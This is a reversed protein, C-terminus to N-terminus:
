APYHPYDFTLKGCLFYVMNILNEVKRYGRARRKALQIKSNIGELIGNSIHAKMFHIIGSLHSKITKSFSIFPPINSKEVEKCWFDIFSKAEEPTKMDWLDYFLQKLRYAEGLTPLLTILENLKETHAASLKSHNKLFVYKYGSLIKHEKREKKRVEDMAKNLLQILHFKDFHIAARPFSEGVGAIFAPSLDISVHKIAEVDSGTKELYNKVQKITHKGKGEVAHFVRYADLDVAVTIYNHGKRSSTEDIGMREIDGPKFKKYALQIWYNFITWLRHPNEGLLQGIKNVPMEGEILAMVFAEFMLTFGSGERSWPVTIQTVKGSQNKIRPVRCHLYCHHEFFNLHRWDKERTDYVSCLQGSEDPFKAGVEFDIHIHLVKQKEDNKLEIGKIFWPSPLGLAMAFIQASNINM